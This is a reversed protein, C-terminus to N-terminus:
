KVLNIKSKHIREDTMFWTGGSSWEQNNDKRISKISTCDIEWLDYDLGGTVEFPPRESSSFLFVAQKHSLFKGFRGNPVLGNQLISKRNKSPSVHYLINPVM